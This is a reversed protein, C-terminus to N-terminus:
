DPMEHRGLQIHLTADLKVLGMGGALNGELGCPSESPSQESCIPPTSIHEFQLMCLLFFFLYRSRRINGKNDDKSFSWGQNREEQEEPLQERYRSVLEAPKSFHVLIRPCISRM